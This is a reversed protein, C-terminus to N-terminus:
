AFLYTIPLVEDDQFVKFAESRPPATSRGKQPLTAGTWPTPEKLNEKRNESETKYDKWQNSSSATPMVDEQTVKDETDPDCFVKFKQKGKSTAATSTTRSTPVSSSASAKSSAQLKSKPKEQVKPSVTTTPAEPAAPTLLMRKQFENFNRKLRELPTAKRNIGIQYM